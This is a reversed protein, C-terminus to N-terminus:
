TEEGDAAAAPEDNSLDDVPHNRITGPAGSHEYEHEDVCETHTDWNDLGHRDRLHWRLADSAGDGEGVASAM